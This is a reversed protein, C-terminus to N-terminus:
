RVSISIRVTKTPYGTKKATVKVTIKKGKDAAKLTYSSKTAYPIPTTGRYWRYSLKPQPSWVGMTVKLTKGVRAKGTITPKPTADWVAKPVVQTPASTTSNKAFAGGTNSVRVTLTKGVDATVVTHTPKTEGEIATADRYWQFAYGSPTLTWTGTSATLTQGVAVTGSIKPAASIATKGAKVSATATSAKTASYYGRRSGTVVLHIKAKYDAAQLRYTSATAGPIAKDGRFWQYGLAVPAPLWNGTNATLVKGAAATGVIVPTPTASLRAPEIAATPAAARSVATYGAKNGTAVVRVAHGADEPQLRYTTAHAGSIEQDDRLWQYALDVKGPGWRGPTATLMQGVVTNGTVTPVTAEELLMFLKSWTKADVAGTAALGVRSQFARLSAVTTKGFTAAPDTPYGALTLLTNLARVRATTNGQSIKVMLYTITVPGAEGDIELKKASQFSKVAAVTRSGYKGTNTVKKGAAVLLSQLASVKPGADGSALVISLPAVDYQTLDFENIIAKLSKAYASASDPREVKAIATTYRSVDNLEKRAATYEAGAAVMAAHGMISDGNTNFRAYKVTTGNTTISACGSQYTSAASATTVGQAGVFNLKAYRRLGAYYKRSKWYSLTTKVVGYARGKAEIIEWDGSALKKTVVAVHGIGNPRAPNNRLFVLDGPKPTSTVSKTVNYQSAALDTIPNGSRGYLWQVLESCDFATPDTNALAAEAGLIYKKGVQAEALKTFQHASLSATCHIGFLNKANQALQSTGYDTNAVAQAISVSAPVGFKRQASQAAQALDSVFAKKTSTSAAEALPTAYVSTGSLM